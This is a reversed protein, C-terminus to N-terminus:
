GNRAERRPEPAHFSPPDHTGHSGCGIRNLNSQSLKAQVSGSMYPRIAITSLAYYLFKTDQDTTGKLVHAHNNVWFRGNVLQLFPKGDPREVSGDEAILLHLGEFLFDDVNDLVGTAGYYPFSGRRKERERSSLPIRRADFNQVLEGLPVERWEGGM